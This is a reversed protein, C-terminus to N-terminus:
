GGLIQHMSSKVTPNTGSYVHTLSYKVIIQMHAFSAPHLYKPCILVRAPLMSCCYDTILVNHPFLHPYFVNAFMYFLAPILAISPLVYRHLLFCCAICLCATFCTSVTPCCLLWRVPTSHPSSCYCYLFFFVHDSPFQSMFLRNKCGLLISLHLLM